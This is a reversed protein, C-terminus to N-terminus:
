NKLFRDFWAVLQFIGENSVVHEAAEDAIFKLKEPEDKYLPKIREYFDYTYSFPVIPDKKGHWFLLPRNMLKEPQRSLDYKEMIALTKEKKEEDISINGNEYAKFGYESFKKFCPMGMLSVAAKIWDYQTLAGLTIFGGMSTGAVGIKEEDILNKGAFYKKIIALEDITNFVIDFFKMYLKESPFNKQREGHYDAEPLVVRFGKEALYYAFHLNKEKLSEFGHVFIVFPLREDMLKKDAAHIVPIDGIKMKELIIM